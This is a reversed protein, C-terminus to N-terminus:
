RPPSPDSSLRRKKRGRLLQQPDGHGDDQGDEDHRRPDHRVCLGATTTAVTAATSEPATMPSWQKGMESVVTSEASAVQFIPAEPDKNICVITKSDKMGALHQIAGSIGVGIYLKPAM